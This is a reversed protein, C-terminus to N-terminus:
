SSGICKALGDNAMSYDTHGNAGFRGSISGFGIFFELPENRTADMLAISGDIKASLCQEVKDPRKRDFRTRLFADWEGTSTYYLVPKDAFSVM